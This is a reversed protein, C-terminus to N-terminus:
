KKIFIQYVSNILDKLIIKSRNSLNYNIHNDIKGKCFYDIAKKTFKIIIVSNKNKGLGEEQSIFGNSIWYWLENSITNSRLSKNEKCGYFEIGKMLKLKHLKLFIHKLAFLLSNYDERGGVVCLYNLILQTPTILGVINNETLEIM